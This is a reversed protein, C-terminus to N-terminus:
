QATEPPQALHQLVGLYIAWAVKAQYAPDALLQAEEPNSIFGCEVLVACCEAENLVYYDGPKSLRDTNGLVRRLQQQVAEALMKAQEHDTKYFVQAGRWRPSTIANAHISLLLDPAAAAAIKMRNRMDQQKKPGAAPLVLLDRDTERTMVVRAGSAQLYDRLLLAIELVVKKEEVNNAMVGPDYGGHGPDLVITKDALPLCGQVTTAGSAPLLFKMAAAAALMTLLFLCSLCYKVGAKKSGVLLIRM